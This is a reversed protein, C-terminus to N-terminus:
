LQLIPFYDELSTGPPAGPFHLSCVYKVPEPILADEALGVMYQQQGEQTVLTGQEVVSLGNDGLEFAYNELGLGAGCSVGHCLVGNEFKDVALHEPQWSNMGATNGWRSRLKNWWVVARPVEGDAGLGVANDVEITWEFESAPLSADRVNQGEREFGRFRWRKGTYADQAVTPSARAECPAVKQVFNFGFRGRFAAWWLMGGHEESSFLNSFHRSVLQLPLLARPLANALIIALTDDDLDELLRVEPFSADSSSQRAIPLVGRPHQPMYPFPFNADREQADSTRDPVVVM